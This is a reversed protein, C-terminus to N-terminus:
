CCRSSVWAGIGSVAQIYCEADLAECLRWSYGLMVDDSYISSYCPEVAGSGM